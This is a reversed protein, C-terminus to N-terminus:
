NGSTLPLFIFKSVRKIHILQERSRPGKIHFNIAIIQLAEKKSGMFILDDESFFSM